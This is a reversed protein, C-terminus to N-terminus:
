STAQPEQWADVDIEFRSKCTDLIASLEHPFSVRRLTALLLCVHPAVEIYAAPACPHLVAHLNALEDLFEDRLFHYVDRRAVEVAHKRRLALLSVAEKAGCRMRLRNFEADTLAERALPDRVDGTSLMFHYLSFADYRLSTGNRFLWFPTRMRGLTIPDWGHWLGRQLVIAAKHERKTATPPPPM